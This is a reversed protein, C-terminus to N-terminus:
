SNYSGSLELPVVGPLEGTFSVTATDASIASGIATGNFQSPQGGTVWTGSYTIHTTDREDFIAQSSTSM